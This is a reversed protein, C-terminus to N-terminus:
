KVAEKQDQPVGIGNQYAFGLNFQGLASGQEAALRYWKVAENQNQPVGIGKQYMWGLKNQAFANGQAALPQWARLATIYDGREYAAQGDQFPGASAIGGRVALSLMAITLGHFIAHRM